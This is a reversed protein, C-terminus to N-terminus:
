VLPQCDPCGALDETDYPSWLSELVDQGQPLAYDIRLQEWAGAAAAAAAASGSTTSSPKALRASSQRILGQALWKYQGAWDLGAAPTATPVSTIAAVAPGAPVHQQAASPAGVQDVTSKIGATTSPQARASLRMGSTQVAPHVASHIAYVAPQVAQVASQGAPASHVAPAKFSTAKNNSTTVAAAAAAGAKKTFRLSAFNSFV